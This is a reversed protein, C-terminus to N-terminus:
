ILSANLSHTTSVYFWIGYCKAQRVTPISFGVRNALDAQILGAKKRAARLESGLPSLLRKKSMKSGNM